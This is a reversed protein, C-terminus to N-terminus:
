ERRSSEFQEWSSLSSNLSMEISGGEEVDETAERPLFDRRFNNLDLSGGGILEKHIQPLSKGKTEPVMFFIFVTGFVCCLSFVWFSFYIGWSSTMVQYLKTVIFFGVATFMSAISSAMGKVKTSFLEGTMTIPLSGLGICYMIFFVILASLPIWETSSKKAMNNIIIYFYLGEISLSAAVGATSMLLLPKRGLRDVLMSSFVSALLQVGGLVMAQVSPDLSSGTKAFIEEAYSLIAMVGSFQQLIVLFAIIFMAKKNGRTFFLDIISTKYTVAIHVYREIKDLESQVARIENGGRLRMLSKEAKAKRDKMMLFYPTEPVWLMVVIFVVPVVSSSLALYQYSVYPGLCFAFLTGLNQLLQMMTGLIGRIDDESIEVIYVPCVTIAIGIGLGGIARSFCLGILSGTFILGWGVLFPIATFILLPKRGLKNMLHGVPLPALISGVSLCAVIWSIKDPTFDPNEAMLKPIAPSTWCTFSGAMFFTLSASISAIYQLSKRSRTM